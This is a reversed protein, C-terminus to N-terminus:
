TRTEADVLSVWAQRLDSTVLGVRGDSIAEREVGVVPLVGWSSNTLFVEDAALMTEIDLSCKETALGLGDALEIIAARTVGPRVPTTSAGPEEEGMALPTLLRGDKVLFINSVSGSAVHNSVSFWIAEGAGVAGAQQLANIRCWYDLTKHGAMPSLPNLRGGAIRALLGKEFYADPYPTPPQVVILVTPDQSTQGTSQLRNLDGGTVTLRVRAVDRGSESITHRIAEVLPTKHLRDSLLLAKASEILRDVHAEARFVGGNRVIMTEFLGVGHQFGADFVSIKADDHDVFSGNLWVTM